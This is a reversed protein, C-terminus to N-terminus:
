KVNKNFKEFFESSLFSNRIKRASMSAYHTRVKFEERFHDNWSGAGTLRLTEGSGDGYRIQLTTLARVQWLINSQVFKPCRSIRLIQMRKLHSMNPLRKLKLCGEIDLTVLGEPLIPLEILETCECLLLETLQSLVACNSPLASFKNHELRLIKLSSLEGFCEPISKLDCYGAEFRVLSQLKSLNSPITTLNECKNLLLEELSELDGIEDPLVYLFECSNMNLCRLHKLHGVSSPLTVILCSELDLKELRSLSGISQPLDGIDFVDRLELDKLSKLEELTDPLIKLNSCSSLILKQLCSLKTISTPLQELKICQFLNLYKLKQLCGISYPLAKLSSCEALGLHKLELLSGISDPLKELSCCCSLELYYLQTHFM